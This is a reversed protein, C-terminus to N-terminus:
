VFYRVSGFVAILTKCFSKKGTIISDVYKEIYINRCFIFGSFPPV